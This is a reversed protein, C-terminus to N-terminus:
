NIENEDSLDIFTGDVPQDIVNSAVVKMWWGQKACAHSRDSRHRRRRRGLCSEAAANWQEPVAHPVSVTVVIM